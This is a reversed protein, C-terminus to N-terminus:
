GGHGGGPGSNGHGPQKQRAHGSNGHSQHQDPHGHGPQKRSRDGHGREGPSTGGSGGSTGASVGAPHATDQTTAAVTVPTATAGTITARCPAGNLTFVLPIPNSTQYGGTLGATATAGAALAGAGRATVAHGSQTWEAGTGGTLRQDAPFDFRLTWADMSRTGSNVVAIDVGFTGGEDNRTQYRVECSVPPPPSAAEQQRVSLAQATSQTTTGVGAWASLGTVTVVATAGAAALRPHHAWWRGASVARVAGVPETPADASPVANWTLADDLPLAVQIGVATSLTAAVEHASPRNDPTKALSRAAVDVVAAPLGAVPPLPQPETYQHAEIMQTVTDAQWPLRGTLMRFLLLGLAYVDSAPTVADGSLREPALYAPTGLITTSSDADAGALAAIGFDVVKVGASTLMVNAPKIDRHVLGQTHAAALAAAVEAAMRVAVPWPVPGQALRVDLTVGDVLEMVVFPVRAGDPEVAEGYDYVSTVNPHSLRAAAQAEARILDRSAADGAFRSSLMKVAVYRGLVEDHARWVVSMGGAGLRDILRYRDTLLRVAVM